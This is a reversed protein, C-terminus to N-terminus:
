WYRACHCCILLFFDFLLSRTLARVVQRTPTPDAPRNQCLTPQTPEPLSYLDAKRGGVELNYRNIPMKKYRIPIPGFFICQEVTDDPITSCHMCFDNTFIEM